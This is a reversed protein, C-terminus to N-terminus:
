AHVPESQRARGAPPAGARSRVLHLAAWCLLTPVAVLATLLVSLAATPGIRGLEETNLVVVALTESGPGYLLSSMTVEHLATVFCLTWAGILAPALPRLAVTRVATLAGAGSVRAARLEDVPLRDLAGAIPRHAFAWLKALYALLILAL